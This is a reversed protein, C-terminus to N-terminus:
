EELWVHVYGILMPLEMMEEAEEDSIKDEDSVDFFPEDDKVNEPIIARIAKELNEDTLFERIEEQLEPNDEAKNLFEPECGRLDDLIAYIIDGVTEQYTVPVGFMLCAVVDKDVFAHGHGSYYDRWGVFDIVVELSLRAM